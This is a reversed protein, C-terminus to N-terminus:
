TKEYVDVSKKFYYFGRQGKLIGNPTSLVHCGSRSSSIYQEDVEYFNGTKDGIESLVVQIEEDKELGAYM